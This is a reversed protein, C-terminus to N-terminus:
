GRLPPEIACIRAIEEVAARIPGLPIGARVREAMTRNSRDGPLMIESFESARPARKATAYLREVQDYYTGMPMLRDPRIAIFTQSYGVPRGIEMEASVDSSLLGGAIVGTLIDIMFALGSGKHDGMPRVRQSKVIAAPDDTPRGDTDYGWAGPLREGKEAALRLGGWAIQQMAIDLVIPEHERRPAAITMPNNGVSPESSGWLPMVLHTNTLGIGICGHRALWRTYYAPCGWHSSNKLLVLGIGQTAALEAATPLVRVCLLPGYGHGGDFQATAGRQELRRPLALPDIKGAKMEAARNALVRVGHSDVGRLDAEVVVESATAADTESLGCAMLATVVFRTLAEASIREPSTTARTRTSM